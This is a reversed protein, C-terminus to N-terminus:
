RRRHRVHDTPRRGCQWELRRQRERGAHFRQRQHIGIQDNGDGDWDGALPTDTSLGFTIQQDGGVTDDWVGNSNLDIYFVGANWSGIEDDGDGDWDGVLPKDGANRFTYLRDGGANGDWVGNGNRDLYYQNGRQAGIEDYGDGNWDGALPVDNSTGFVFLRDGGLAGNWQGNANADERFQNGRKVGVKDAVILNKYWAIKHDDFSASFCTWTATATWM